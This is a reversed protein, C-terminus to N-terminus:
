FNKMVFHHLEIVNMHLVNLDHKRNADEYEARVHELSKLLNALMRKYEAIKSNYGKAKALVIWGLKEFAYDHWKQLGHLTNAYKPLRTSRNRKVPKNNSKTNAKSNNKRTNNKPSNM